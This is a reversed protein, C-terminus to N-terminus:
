AAETRRIVRENRTFAFHTASLHRNHCFYPENFGRAKLYFWTEHWGLSGGIHFELDPMNKNMSM